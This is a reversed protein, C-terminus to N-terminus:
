GIVIVIGVVVVVFGDLNLEQAALFDKHISNWREFCGPTV